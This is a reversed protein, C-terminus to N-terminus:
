KKEKKPEEKDEKPVAVPTEGAIHTYFPLHRQRIHGVCEGEPEHYAQVHIFEDWLQEDTGEKRARIIHDCLAHTTVCMNIDNPKWFTWGIYLDQTGHGQYGDFHALSLAKKSLLTCGLGVWDTPLIAGKGIAPYAYEMWGRQKWKKGNALFVNEKPASERIIKQIEAGRDLWEDTPKFDKASSDKERKSLEKLIKKDIEKEEASFDEAIHHNYDGRGGLFAGGGQSPYSCMAVDYYGNDFKLIDLSVSLSNHAVLVDSEVSWLYDCDLKRAFTFASSQMQAILLQAGEKYNTLDSDEIPLELYHFRADPHLVDAIHQQASQKIEDSQDGVFIFDIDTIGAQYLSSAIRRGVNPLAYDYRKTAYTAVCIKV